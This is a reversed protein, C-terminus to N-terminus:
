AAVEEDQAVTALGIWAEGASHVELAGAYDSEILAERVEDASVGSSRSEVILCGGGPAILDRISSLLEAADHGAGLVRDMGILDFQGADFPLAGIDGDVVSCHSHGESRVRARAILRMQASHDLGIIRRAHPALASLLTGTGTGLDLANELGAPWRRRILTNLAAALQRRSAASLPRVGLEALFRDAQHQRDEFLASLRTKDNSMTSGGELAELVRPVLPSTETRALRYYVYSQDQTRHLIGADALLRLHRSVRPQSLTLVRTLDGVTLEGHALVALIRLRTPDGLLKLESAIQELSMPTYAYLSIKIYGLARPIALVGM